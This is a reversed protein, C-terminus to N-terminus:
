RGSKVPRPCPCSPPPTRSVALCRCPRAARSWRRAAGPSRRKPQQLARPAPRRWGTRLRLPTRPGGARATAAGGSRPCGRACTTTAPCRPRRPSRPRPRCSRRPTRCSSPRRCRRRRATASACSTDGCLCVNDNGRAVSVVVDAYRMVRPSHFHFVRIFMPRWLQLIRVKFAQSPQKHPLLLLCLMASILFSCM